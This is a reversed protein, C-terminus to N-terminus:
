ETRFRVAAPEPRSSGGGLALRYRVEFLAADPAVSHEQAAGDPLMGLREYFGRAPVNQEVVWLTLERASRNRGAELARGFLKRGIGGGRREPAVHLNYIEWVSAPDLDGDHAPGCACFGLLDSAGGALFVTTDPDTLKRRWSDLREETKLGELYARPLIDRYASRWSAIHLRAIAAADAETAIRESFTAPM